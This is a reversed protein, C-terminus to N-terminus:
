SASGEMPATAELAVEVIGEVVRVPYRPLPRSAPPGLVRGDRVDFSAGHLPCILRVGRLRGEDMRALAHTCVNDLAFVGERTHCLLVERGAVTVCRMRGQPLEAFALAPHFTPEIM